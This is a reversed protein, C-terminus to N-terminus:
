VITFGWALTDKILFNFEEALENYAQYTSPLELVPGCTHVIPRRSAGTLELFTVRISNCTIVDGGTIFALFQSVRGGDLSRIYRKLHDFCAHEAESLPSARLLKVIKRPTPKKADYMEKLSNVSQFPSFTKLVAIISAFCDIIYKPKQLMEQHALENITQLINDKTINRKCKYNGLVDLLDDDDMSLNGSLADVLTDREESSIYLQFSDFLFEASVSEEGFLAAAIFAPSLHIPFYKERVYGYVLVRAIAQWHSKQYDHRISPVKEQTGLTLSDFVHQWFNTLMDLVVGRGSGKEPNGDNGIITVHLFSNLIRPDQFIEVVENRILNRHVIINRHELIEDDLEM